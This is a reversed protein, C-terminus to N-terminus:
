SAAIRLAALADPRVLGGGVRKRGHFRILGSGRMTFPDQLISVGANAKDLVWFARGFDGFLVPKANAAISPMSDDIEVPYGLLSAPTGPILGAGAAGSEAWLYRNQADKLLRIAAATSTSMLWRANRRYTAPIAHALRILSDPLIAVSDGTAVTVLAPSALVGFPQRIGTGVLWALSEAAAFSEGLETAILDDLPLDSDELLRLSVDIYTALEHLPIETQGFNIDTGPRNAELEGVWYAVSSNTQKPVSISGKDTVFNRALRRIPSAERIARQLEAVFQTPALYGGSTDTAAHLSKIETYDLADRGRRLYVSFARDEATQVKKEGGRMGSWRDGHALRTAIRDLEDTLKAHSAAVAADAYSKNEAQVAKFDRAIRQIEREIVPFFPDDAPM